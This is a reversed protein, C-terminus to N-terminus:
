PTASPVPKIDASRFGGASRWDNDEKVAATPSAPALFDVTVRCPCQRPATINRHQWVISNIGLRLIRVEEFVARASDAPDLIIRRPEATIRSLYKQHTVRGTCMNRGHQRDVPAPQLFDPHQRGAINGPQDTNGSRVVEQRQAVTDVLRNKAAITGLRLRDGMDPRARRSRQQQRATLVIDDVRFSLASQPVGEHRRCRRWRESRDASRGSRWQRPAPATVASPLVPIARCRRRWQARAQPGERRDAPPAHGRERKEHDHDHDTHRKRDDHAARPEGPAVGSVGAPDIGGPGETEARDAAGARECGRQPGATDICPLHQDRRQDHDPRHSKANVDRLASGADLVIRAVALHDSAPAGIGRPLHKKQRLFLCENGDRKRQRHHEGGPIWQRAQARLVCKADQHQDNSDGAFAQGIHLQAAKTGGGGIGALNAVGAEPTPRPM